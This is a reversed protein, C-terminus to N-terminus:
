PAPRDLVALRGDPHAVLLQAGRVALGLYRPRPGYRLVSLGVLAILVMTPLLVAVLLLLRGRRM